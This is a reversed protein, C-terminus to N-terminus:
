FLLSLAVVALIFHTSALRNEASAIPGDINGYLRYREMWLEKDCSDIAAFFSIVENRTSEESLYRTRLMKEVDGIFCPQEKLTRVYDLCEERCVFPTCKEAVAENMAVTVPDAPNLMKGFDCGRIVNGNMLIECFDLGWESVCWESLLNEKPYYIFIAFCMEDQTGEGYNVTKTKDLSQWVCTTHLEDGPRVTIPNKYKYVVPSNYDYHDDKALYQIRRGNRNLETIQAKGMLHMHNFVMTVQIDGMMIQNTCNGPCTGQEEHEIKGPPIAINNQGILLVGANNSRLNPTLYLESGSSDTYGDVLSPNNWHFELVAYKLGKEGSIQFGMNEDFCMGNGGAVWVSIAEECYKIEDECVWPKNLERPATNMGACGYVIIHHMVESNAIIPNSAILHYPKDSPFEFAMCMYTTEQAPVPTEPFRVEFKIPDETHIPPCDFERTNGCDVFSNRGSCTSSTMPECVGPHSLGTTVTPTQGQSWSCDPDGLEEGNTRGDGDSDMGCITSNWVKGNADFDMGFPNRAGGGAKNEHGVGEWMRSSNCPHPVSDGNPIGAKFSQYAHVSTLLMCAAPLWRLLRRDDM